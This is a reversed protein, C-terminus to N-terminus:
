QGTYLESRPDAWPRCVTVGPISAPLFGRMKVPILVVPEEVVAKESEIQATKPSDVRDKGQATKGAGCVPPAGKEDAVESAHVPMASALSHTRALPSIQAVNSNLGSPEKSQMYAQM